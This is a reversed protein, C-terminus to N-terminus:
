KEPLIINPCVKGGCLFFNKIIRNVLVCIRTWWFMWQMHRHGITIQQCILFIAVMIFYYRKEYGEFSAGWFHKILAESTGNAMKNWYTIDKQAFVGFVCCLMFLITLTKKM